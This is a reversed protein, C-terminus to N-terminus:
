KKTGAPKTLPVVIGGKWFMSLKYRQVIIVCNKKKKKLIGIETYFNERIQLSGVALWPVTLLDGSLFVVPWSKAINVPVTERSPYSSHLYPYNQHTQLAEFFIM